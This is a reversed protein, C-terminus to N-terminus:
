LYGDQWMFWVSCFECWSALLRYLCRGSVRGPLRKCNAFQFIVMFNPLDVIEIPWTWYSNQCLWLTYVTTYIYIAMLLWWSDGNTWWSFWIWTQADQGGPGDEQSGGSQLHRHTWGSHSWRRGSPVWPGTKSRHFRNKTDRHITRNVFYRTKSDFTAKIRHKDM